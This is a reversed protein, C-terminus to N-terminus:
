GYVTMMVAGGFAGVAAGCGIGHAVLVGIMMAIRQRSASWKPFLRTTRYVTVTLLTSFGMAVVTAFVVLAAAVGRSHSLPDGQEPVVAPALLVAAVFCAGSLAHLALLMGHVGALPAPSALELMLEDTDDDAM